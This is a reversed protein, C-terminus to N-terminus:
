LHGTEPRSAHQADLARRNAAVEEPGLPWKWILLAAPLYFVAPLWSFTGAVALLATADNDQTPEFGFLGPLAFSLATGVTLALKLVIGGVAMFRGTRAEGTKLADLDIVDAFVSYPLALIAGLSFASMCSAALAGWAGLLWGALPVMATLLLSWILALALAKHKPIRTALRTWFALGLLSVGWCALLNISYLEPRNYVNGFLFYNMAGGPTIGIYILFVVLMYWRFHRNRFVSGEHRSPEPITGSLTQPLLFTLALLIPTTILLAISIIHLAPGLRTEEGLALWVTIMIAAISGVGGMVERASVIKTRVNYDRSLEAGWSVYPLQVLTLGFFVLVFWVLFYAGGATESPHFLMWMSALFVPAGLAIWIKRRGFRSRTRDSLAGVLPDTIVDSARSILILASIMLMGLGVEGAYFAPTFNLLALTAMAIFFQPLAYLLLATSTTSIKLPM